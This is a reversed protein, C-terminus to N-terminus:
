TSAYRSPSRGLLGRRPHRRRGPLRTRAALGAARALRHREAAGVLEAQRQETIAQLLLPQHRM